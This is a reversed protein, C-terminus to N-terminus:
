LNQGSLLVCVSDLEGFAQFRESAEMSSGGALGLGLLVRCSGSIFVIFALSCEFLITLADELQKGLFPPLILM